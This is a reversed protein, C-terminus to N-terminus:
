KSNSSKSERAALLEILRKGEEDASSYHQILADLKGSQALDSTLNPNLMHWGTVGFASGVADAIDETPSREGALLYDIMRESVGSRRHIEKTSLGFTAKLMRLNRQFSRVTKKVPAKSMPVDHGSAVSSLHPSRVITSSLMACLRASKRGHACVKVGFGHAQVCTGASGDDLDALGCPELLPPKIPQELAAKFVGANLLDLSQM